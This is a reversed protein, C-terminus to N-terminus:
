VAAKSPAPLRGSDFATASLTGDVTIPGYVPYGAIDFAEGLPGDGPEVVVHAVESLAAVQERAEEDTGHVVTLVSRGTARVTTRAQEVFLPLREKCARCDPSFFGLMAEGLGERTIREGATTVASFGPVASDAPIIPGDAVRDAKEDAQARLKRIVGFTLLLNLPCLVAILVVATVLFPM